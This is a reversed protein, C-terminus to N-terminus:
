YYEAVGFSSLSHFFSLIFTSVCPSVRKMVVSIFIDTQGRLSMPVVYARWCCGGLYVSLTSPFLCDVIPVTLACQYIMAANMKFWKTQNDQILISQTNQTGGFENHLSPLIEPLTQTM